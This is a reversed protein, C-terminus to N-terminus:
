KQVEIEDVFPLQQVSRLVDGTTIKRTFGDKLDGDHLRDWTATLTATSGNMTFKMMGFITHFYQIELPNGSEGDYDVQLVVPTHKVKATHQDDTM